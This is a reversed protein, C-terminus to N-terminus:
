DKLWKNLWGYFERHWLVSNQPQLVFHSEHPFFLLKSPVDNLQAANFAQISQTYPVRYDRAGTIIMIPTNWNQVFLHPSFQDYSKPKPEEWYPGELDHNMFWYEETAGYMSEQHYIGCHSIFCQFRDPYKGALYFVSYGGYSAGIAGLRNEDVFPEEALADIASMYDRINQGGYDGSIQDNWEQGFTPLGRRNPAVIIYDNAAMAQFNWRFSFFQSVASQPGGQCYLVAPYQKNKDFHPPYIVWVLMQKGDSTEIWREESHALTINDLINNNVRSLQQQEGEPTVAYVETPQAHSQRGGILKDGAKQLSIYNHAGQTVQSIELSGTNVEYIQYTAHIGSIFYIKDGQSSWTMHSACQDFGETMYTTEGTEMDMLMMRKKDSEFGETEMSQWVLMSGDPSFVPDKDYGDFGQATLNTTEKNELNFAYLNSNTSLTYDKGTLKKCVYVIHKEDPSWTIQGMGGWPPMPSNYPEGDMINTHDTLGKGDYYAYFIHSYHQDHWQDWHRYMLDDAIYADAQPLDPHLDNVTEGLKIRRTYLVYNQLPSYEFGTIGEPIHSIKKKSSGDPKVEWLQNHNDKDAALFGIANGDPRWRGNRQSGEGGAILERMEGGEMHFVFLRNNGSNEELDYRSIGFLIHRNDPSVQIDSVRGLKWLLEPTMVEQSVVTDSPPESVPDKEQECAALIVIGALWLLIFYNKM